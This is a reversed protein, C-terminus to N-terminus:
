RVNRASINTTKELAPLPTSLRLTSPNKIQIGPALSSGELGKLAGVPPPQVSRRREEESRREEGSRTGERRREEERWEEKKRREERRRKV